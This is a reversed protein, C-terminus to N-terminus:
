PTYIIRQFGVAHSLTGQFDTLTLQLLGSRIDGIVATVGSYRVRLGKKFRKRIKVVLPKLQYNGGGAVAVVDRMLSFQRDYHMKITKGRVVNIYNPTSLVRTNASSADDLMSGIATYAGNNGLDSTLMIRVNDATNVTNAPDLPYLMINAEYKWITITSGERTGDADGTAMLCPSYHIDTVALDDSFTTYNYRKEGSIASQLQLIKKDQQKDKSKKKLVAVVNRGRKFGGVPAFLKAGLGRGAM